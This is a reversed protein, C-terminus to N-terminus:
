LTKTKTLITKAGQNLTNEIIQIIKKLSDNNASLPRKIQNVVIKSDVKSIRNDRFATYPRSNKM